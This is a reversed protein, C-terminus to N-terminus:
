FLLNIISPGYESFQQKSICCKQFVSLSGLISGGVWASYKRRPDPPAIVKIKATPPALTTIEKKLCDAIGPFMTNGGSLVINAYLDERIDADCKMISNHLTKHIGPYHMGLLRPQFLAEPCRFRENGITITRGDPLKYSKELSSSSAATSMEQEFNLAIYCLEEKIDHVIQLEDTAPLSYGHEKLIKKLCDVLDCGALNLTEIACPLAHGDYIPVAHSVGGGSGLIVGETRGSAYMSLTQQMAVFLAPANFTEFMIQAMKERNAKPNLPAETLLVPHEEPAM